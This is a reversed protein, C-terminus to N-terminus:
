SRTETCEACFPNKLVSEIYLNRGWPVYLLIKCAPCRWILRKNRIRFIASRTADIHM